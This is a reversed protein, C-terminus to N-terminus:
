FELTADGNLIASATVSYGTQKPTLLAGRDPRGARSLAAVVSTPVDLMENGRADEEWDTASEVSAGVFDRSDGEETVATEFTANPDLMNMAEALGNRAEVPMAALKQAINILSKTYGIGHETFSAAVVKDANRLGARQLNDVLSARLENPVEAWMNRTLGVSAIALCHSFSADQDVVSANIQKTAAAVRKEIRKNVVASAAVNVQALRYKMSKLGERLGLSKCELVVSDEYEATQYEDQVNALAARKGTLTAIIRGGKIVISTPGVSAFLLGEVNDDPTQDVDVLDMLEVDEGEAANTEAVEGEFAGGPEVGMEQTLEDQDGPDVGPAPPVAEQGDWVDGSEIEVPEAENTPVGEPLAEGTDGPANPDEPTELSPGGPLPPLAGDNAVVAENEDAVDLVSNESENVTEEGIPASDAFDPVVQVPQIEIYGTAPNVDNPLTAVNTDDETAEGVHARVPAQKATVPNKKIPAGPKVEDYNSFFVRGKFDDDPDILRDVSMNNELEDSEPLPRQKDYNSYNVSTKDGAGRAIVQTGKQQPSRILAM